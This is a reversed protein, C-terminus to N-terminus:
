RNRYNFGKVYRNYEELSQNPYQPYPQQVNIIGDDTLRQGNLVLTHQYQKQDKITQFREYSRSYTKPTIIPLQKSRYNLYKEKFRNLRETHDKKDTKSSITSKLYITEKKIPRSKKSGTFLNKLKKLM